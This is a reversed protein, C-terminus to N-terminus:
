DGFLWYKIKTAPTRKPESSGKEWGAYYEEPTENFRDFVGGVIDKADGVWGFMADTVFWGIYLVGAGLAVAGAKAVSTVTSDVVKAGVIPKIINDREWTGLEVRHTIVQDPKRKPM